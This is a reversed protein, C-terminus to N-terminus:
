YETNNSVTINAPNVGMFLEDGINSYRTNTMTVTSTSSDTRFIAEDMDSIDCRDIFVEVKFSTGGNQRIFKGANSARFNSVRFTSAANVQFVKDDGNRASGGDLTVTGSQKITLADEGIDEWVVNELTVDGYTHIGDAAPSGLVVNILRGGDEIKFVPSQDEDQSGDGLTNPDARYRRCQGDFTEGSRVVITSSVTGFETITSCAKAMGGDAGGESPAGGEGTDPAGGDSGGAPEGGSGSGGNMAGGAPSGAGAVGAGGLPAGGAGSTSGGSSGGIANSDSGGSAKGFTGGNLAGSAGVAGGSGDFAGGGGGTPASGGSSPARGGSPDGVGGGTGVKGGSASTGPAGGSPLSAGGGSGDQSTGPARESGTPEPGCASALAFVFVASLAQFSLRHHM